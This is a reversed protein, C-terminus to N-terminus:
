RGGGSQRDSEHREGARVLLVPVPAARVLTEAISGLLWRRVGGRGHSAMVILDGPVTTAAIATFPSGTLVAQTMAVGAEEM